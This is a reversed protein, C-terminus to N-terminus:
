RPIIITIKNTFSVIAVVYISLFLYNSKTIKVFTSHQKERLVLFFCNKGILRFISFECYNITKTKRPIGNLYYIPFTYPLNERTPFPFYCQHFNVNWKFGDFSLALGILYIPLLLCRCCCFFGSASMGRISACYVILNIVNQYHFQSTCKNTTGHRTSSLLLCQIFQIFTFQHFEDWACM